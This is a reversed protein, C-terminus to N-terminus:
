SMQVAECTHLLVSQRVESALKDAAARTNAELIIKDSDQTLIVRYTRSGDSLKNELIQIVM